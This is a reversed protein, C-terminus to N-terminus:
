AWGQWSSASGQGKAGCSFQMKLPKLAGGSGQCGTGPAGSPSQWAPGQQPETHDGPLPAPPRSRQTSASLGGQAGQARLGGLLLSHVDEDRRLSDTGDDALLPLVDLLEGAKCTGGDLYAPNAQQSGM